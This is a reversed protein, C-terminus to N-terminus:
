TDNPERLVIVMGPESTDFENFPPCVERAVSGPITLRGQKLEVKATIDVPTKEALDQAWVKVDPNISAAKLAVSEFAGFLGVPASINEIKATIAVKPNVYGTEPSVRGLTAIAVPGNPHRSALVYPVRPGKSESECAEVSVPAINRCVTAPARQALVDKFGGSYWSPPTRLDWTDTLITNSLHTEHGGVPFPPAIRHWNLTRVIELMKRTSFLAAGNLADNDSAANGLLNECIERGGKIIQEHFAVDKRPHRMIGICCGLGAGLYPIIECNLLCDTPKDPGFAALTQAAREIMTTIGLQATVDYLRVVHSVPILDVFKALSQPSLRGQEHALMHFIWSQGEKKAAKAADRSLPTNFPAFVNAHEVQLGPAYKEALATLMRRYRVSNCQKGWDVKWYEIGAEAMWQMREVWYLPEKANKTDAYKHAEAKMIAPSEQCAIWLGIGRWGLDKFAQNLKRLGEAPTGAFSPFKDMNLICSGYYPDPSVIPTDWADDLLFYVGARAEPFLTHALGNEGLLTEENLMTAALRNKDMRAYKDANKELLKRPHYHEQWGFTCFYNPVESFAAPVLSGPGQETPWAGSATMAVGATMLGCFKRRSMSTM